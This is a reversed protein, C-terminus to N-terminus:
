IINLTQGNIVSTVCEIDINNKLYNCLVPIILVETLYHTGDILCIDLDNATQADHYGVDGTIYVECGNEKATQIYERDAGKGTCLGVKKVITNIDGSITIHKAGLIHKVKEAFDLFTMEKSLVGIKGLGADLEPNILNSINVLGLMEALISNTGGNAIDLNTHASYVAINNKILKIIRKGLPTYSNVSKIEKFILPHHTIIMEAGINIAEDIVDDNIDLAVLVKNIESDFEGVMLGVNDWKEALSVPAYKELCNIIESCKVPM